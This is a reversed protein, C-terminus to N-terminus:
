ILELERRLFWESKRVNDRYYVVDYKFGMDSEWVGVIFGEVGIGLIRVDAGINFKWTNLREKSMSMPKYDFKFIHTKPIKKKM